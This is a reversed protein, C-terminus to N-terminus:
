FSRELNNKCAGSEHAANVCSVGCNFRIALINNNHNDINHKGLHMVDCLCLMLLAVFVVSVRTM